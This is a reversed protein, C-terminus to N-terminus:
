WNKGLRKNLEAVCLDIAKGLYRRVLWEPAWWPLNEVPIILMAAELAVQRKQAGSFEPGLLKVQAEVHRVLNPIVKSATKLIPFFGQASKLEAIAEKGGVALEKMAELAKQAIEKEDM